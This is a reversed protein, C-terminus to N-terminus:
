RVVENRHPNGLVDFPGATGNEAVFSVVGM